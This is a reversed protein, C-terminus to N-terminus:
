NKNIRLKISGHVVEDSLWWKHIEAVERNNGRVCQHVKHWLLIDDGKLCCTVASSRVQIQWPQPHCASWHSNHWWIEDLWSRNTTTTNTIPSVPEVISLTGWILITKKHTIWCHNSREDMLMDSISISIKEKVQSLMPTMLNATM